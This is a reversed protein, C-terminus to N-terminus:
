KELLKREFAMRVAAARSRVRLKRYINKIHTRVTHPSIYLAAAIAAETEGRVIHELLEIERSSLTEDPQQASEAPPPPLPAPVRAMLELVKRAISRSLPVGGERVELAARVIADAPTDKLLYGSAGAQIAALVTDPEEFVTLMLVGVSGGEEAFRHAVDIGSGDPLGIDVLAVDPPADLAAVRETFQAVTGAEAVVVAQEFFQLREVVKKRFREDDDLIAIRVRM